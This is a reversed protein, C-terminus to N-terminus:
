LVPIVGAVYQAIKMADASNVLGDDTVDANLMNLDGPLRYRADYQAVWMADIINVVGDDNADGRLIVVPPVPEVDGFTINVGDYILVIQGAGSFVIGSVNVSEDINHLPIYVEVRNASIRLAQIGSLPCITDVGTQISYGRGAVQVPIIVTEVLTGDYVGTMYMDVVVWAIGDGIGEFQVRMAQDSVADMIMNFSLLLLGFFIVSLGFILIYDMTVVVAKEDRKITDTM